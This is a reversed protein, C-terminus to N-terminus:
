SSRSSARSAAYAGWTRNVWRRSPEEVLSYSLAAVPITLVVTAVLVVATHGTFLQIGLLPFVLSLVAVHWLFISYSWRGLTQMVPSTLWRSQPALAYPTVLAAAFVAGYVIRRAFEGPTAYTLGEPGDNAAVLLAAGALLWLAWRFRRIRAVWGQWRIPNAGIAGEAEASLLGVAFWAAFAPPMVHPNLGGPSPEGNLGPLFAWGLSALAVGLIVAVRGRRTLGSLAVAILPLVLYFALEVSLSWLHTLGGLLGGPVYIQVMGLNALVQVIGPRGVVPLFIVVTLITAWAAPMIRGLRKVYYGVLRLLPGDPTARRDPATAVTAEQAGRLKASRRLGGGVLPARRGFDGRHRRWLLFGSLAFFVPVFFDTRAMVRNLLGGTDAGTQFAVHTIIIGCCAVARLGELSALFQGRGPTTPGPLASPRAAPAAHRTSAPPM